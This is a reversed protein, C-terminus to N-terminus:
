LLLSVEIYRSFYNVVLLYIRGNLSFLNTGLVQWPREPVELPIMPERNPKRHEICKRCNTVMDALQKSLGPWWVSDKVRRRCKVIGQHEEHIREPIELRMNSPIILRSGKLLIGRVMSIEGRSSWYPILSNPLKHTDPWGEECYDMPKRCVPDEKQQVSIEELRKDSAPLQFLVSEVYLNIEEEREPICTSQSPARSLADAAMLHKGPVHSITFDFRLLRMRLRQIRPPIEDLNRSGLLPVLPKHDTEVHFTKGVLYDVLRECAWTTALAEKKIQANRQETSTLARSIFAVPKWDGDPQKQAM